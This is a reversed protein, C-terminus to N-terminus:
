LIIKIKANKKQSQKIISINSLITLLIKPFRSNCILKTSSTSVWNPLNKSRPLLPYRIFLFSQNISTDVNNNSISFHIFLIISMATIYSCFLSFEKSLPYRKQFSSHLVMFIKQVNTLFGLLDVIKYTQITIFIFCFIWISRVQLLFSLLWMFSFTVCFGFNTIQLTKM